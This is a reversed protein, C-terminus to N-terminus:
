ILYLDSNSMDAVTVDFILVRNGAFDTIQVLNDIQRMHTDILDQYSDIGDMDRLDLIDHAGSFEFDLVRDTGFAGNFVFIDSGAGGFLHDDGAGGNIYDQGDGASITDNGNGGFITDDGIQGFLRDDGGNGVVLDNGHGGFVNDREGGGYLEDDSYRGVLRDRGEGGYITDNGTGGDLRDNGDGGYILDDGLFTFIVDNGTNGMVTDNGSGTVITDNRGGGDIFNNGSGGNISDDGSGGFISDDGGGGFITDDGFGGFITDNGGIINPGETQTDGYIVDNGAGGDIFDHGGVVTDTASVTQADGFIQDAAASGIISDNGGNLTSGGNLLFVDGYIQNDMTTSSVASLDIVDAGANVVSNTVFYADGSVSVAADETWDDIFTITDNGGNLTADQLQNVDGDIIDATVNFTDSGATLTIAEVISFDGTLTTNDAGRGTFTDNAAFANTGIPNIGDGSIITAFNESLRIESAGLLINDWLSETASAGATYDLDTAELSLGTIIINNYFDPTGLDFRISSFTGATPVGAGDVVLGSAVGVVRSGDSTDWTLNDGGASTGLNTFDGSGPLLISYVADSLSFDVIAM